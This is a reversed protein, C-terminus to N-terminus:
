QEKRNDIQDLKYILARRSVGLYQATQTKNNDHMKLAQLIIRESFHELPFENHPLRFSTDPTLLIVDPDTTSEQPYKTIPITGLHMPKLTDEDYMVVSWEIANQLERINGPWEYDLLIKQADPSISSFKRNRQKAFSHLFMSSLPLIEEKRQRLPPLQITGVKLRYYLDKRFTGLSVATELNVNTACIIRIDTKIKNLGGVRYFEKEQIVRLLKGQLDLPIEAVEDLFLTGGKALDMKGKSGKALGGTFSGAEYGFLESEFLSPTIAACNIDIFPLDSPKDGYHIAKAILEKGTGTEGQILVPIDRVLHYKYAVGIIEAMCPSFIGMQIGLNKTAISKWQLLEERTQETEAYVAESFEKSLRKNERKLVQHERVREIIAALEDIRIPKLLYDYAGARLASIASDMDGHGTFLVVDTFEGQQQAKIETLLDLGSKGPMQIDSLVIPYDGQSYALLAQEASSCDVIHHGLRFLFNHVSDLSDIDDDVLLINM